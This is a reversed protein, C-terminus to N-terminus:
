LQTWGETIFKGDDDFLFTLNGAMLRQLAEEHTLGNVRIYPLIDKLAHHLIKGREELDMQILEFEPRKARIGCKEKQVDCDTYFIPREKLRLNVCALEVMLERVQVESLPATIKALGPMFGNL